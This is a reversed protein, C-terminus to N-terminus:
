GFIGGFGMEGCRGHLFRGNQTLEPCEIDLIVAVKKIGNYKLTEQPLAMVGALQTQIRQHPAIRQMLGTAAGAGNPFQKRRAKFLRLSEYHAAAVEQAGIPIGDGRMIAGIERLPTSLVRRSTPSSPEGPLHLLWLVGVSFEAPLVHIIRGNAGEDDLRM